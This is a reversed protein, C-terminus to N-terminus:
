TKMRRMEGESNFVIIRDAHRAGLFKQDFYVRVWSGSHIRAMEYTTKGDSSFIRDFKPVLLFSMTKHAYPDYVKINDTSVHVVRGQFENNVTTQAPASLTAALFLQSAMFVLATLRKM